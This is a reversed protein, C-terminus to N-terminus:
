RALLITLSSRRPVPCSKELVPVPAGPHIETIEAVSHLCLEGCVPSPMPERAPLTPPLVGTRAPLREGRPSGEAPEELDRKAARRALEAIVAIGEHDLRREDTESAPNYNFANAPDNTAGSFDQAFSGVREVKDKTRTTASVQLCRNSINVM